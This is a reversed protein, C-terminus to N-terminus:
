RLNLFFINVYDLYEMLIIIKSLFNVLIKVKVKLALIHIMFTKANLNLQAVVFDKKNIFKIKKTILLAKYDYLKKLYTKKPM